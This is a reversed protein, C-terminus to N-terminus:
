KRDDDGFDTLEVNGRLGFTAKEYKARIIQAYM